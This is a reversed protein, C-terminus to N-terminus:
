RDKPESGLRVAPMIRFSRYVAPLRLLATVHDPTRGPGDGDIVNDGM